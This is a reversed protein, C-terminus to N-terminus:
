PLTLTITMLQQRRSTLVELNMYHTGNPGAMPSQDHGTVCTHLAVTDDYTRLQALINDLVTPWQPTTATAYVVALPFVTQEQQTGVM